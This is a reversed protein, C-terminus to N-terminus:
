ITVQVTKSMVYNDTFGGFVYVSHNHSTMAPCKVSLPLPALERWCLDDKSMMEVDNLCKTGDTGGLFLSRDWSLGLVSPSTISEGVVFVSRDVVACAHHYRGHVLPSSRCWQNMYIYFIIVDSLAKNDRVGGASFDNSVEDFLFNRLLFRVQSQIVGFHDWKKSFPEYTTIERSEQQGGEKQSVGGFLM